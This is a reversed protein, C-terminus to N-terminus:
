VVAIVIQRTTFKIMRIEQLTRQFIVLPRLTARENVTVLPM